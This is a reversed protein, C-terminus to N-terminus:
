QVRRQVTIPAVEVRRNPELCMIRAALVKDKCVVVPNAEGLGETKIRQADTGKGVLYSKVAVARRESLKQNYTASGIDDTYGTIVVESPNENTALAAAIEDLKPQPMQLTASDFGFLETASLTYREFRPQVPLVAVPMPTPPMPPPAVVSRVPEEPAMMPRVAVPTMEHAGFRYILGVFALDIHGNNGIADNVRYREVEARLALAPTFAYQLGFGFKVNTERTSPNPNIVRVAGTGVFSDSANTYNMGVRGLISFKETIPWTGVADLNIGHLRIDGVLTGLPLTNATYGFKGLDFYGGELAFNPNFQYGGLLKYATDRDRDAISTMTLGRGALSSSIRADDITAASRGASLGLYWGPEEARALPSAMIAMAVLALGGTTTNFKM